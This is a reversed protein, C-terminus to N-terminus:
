PRGATENNSFEVFDNTRRRLIAADHSRVFFNDRITVNKNGKGEILFGSTPSDLVTNGEILINEHDQSDRSLMIAAHGTKTGGCGQVLNRRVAINRDGYTRFSSESALMIGAYGASCRVLNDAIEVNEGGIVSLGRAFKNDLVANRLMRINKVVGGDKEYSVVAIGDDGSYRVTNDAVTIDHSQRTIHISDSLTNRVDNNQITGNSAARVFIGACDGGDIAVNSISFNTAEAVLIGSAEDYSSRKTSDYVIKVNSLKAGNGALVIASNNKSTGKLLTQGPTGSVEIGNLVLQGSHLFLGPPLKVPRHTKAAEDFLSQLESQRDESEDTALTLPAEARAPFALLLALTVLLAKNM